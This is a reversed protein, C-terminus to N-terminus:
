LIVVSSVSVSIPSPWHCPPVMFVNVCVCVFVCVCVWLIGISMSSGFFFFIRSPLRRWNGFSHLHKTSDIFHFSHFVLTLTIYFLFICVLFQTYPMTWLIFIGRMHLVYLYVRDCDLRCHYVRARARGNNFYLPWEIQHHHQWLWCGFAKNYVSGVKDIRYDKMGNSRENWISVM